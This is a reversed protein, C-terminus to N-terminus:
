HIFTPNRAGIRGQPSGWPFGLPGQEAGAASKLLRPPEPVSGARKQARKHPPTALHSLCRIAFGDNVPELGTAAEM